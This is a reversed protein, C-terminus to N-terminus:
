ILSISDEWKKELFEGLRAPDLFFLQGWFMNASLGTTGVYKEDLASGAAIKLWVFNTHISSSKNMFVCNFPHYLSLILNFLRFHLKYAYSLCTVHSLHQETWITGALVCEKMQKLQSQM